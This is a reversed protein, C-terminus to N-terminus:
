EDIEEEVPAVGRLFRGGNLSMLVQPNLSPVHRGVWTMRMMSALMKARCGLLRVSQAVFSLGVTRIERSPLPLFHAELRNSAHHIKGKPSWTTDDIMMMMMSPSYDPHLALNPIGAM